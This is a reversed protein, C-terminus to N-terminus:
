HRMPTRSPTIVAQQEDHTRVTQFFDRFQPYFRSEVLLTQLVLDRKLHLSGNKNEAAVHYEAIKFDLDYAPPASDVQTGTPLEITIDDASKSPFNFYLPHIRSAREFTRKEKAGFLGVTLLGRQGAGSVWGPVKLEYEATLEPDSSSWAPTNTLKVDIGSPIDYKIQNELFQKRDTDDENREELRRWLAELGTYTVTVTGELSGGTTLRLNAKRFVRSESASPLPTNIWIGGDKNLRLGRVGTEDWPLLGFPVFPTGPDLYLDKGDLRAIVINSNLQSPNMLAESFFYTDRTSVWVPDAEIGAARALGLFLWTIQIGDGYGRKWVDAVNNANKQDERKVEEESKAREFSTNRLQQTRAYIKRLKVEPSDGPAVIQALAEEMVRRRDVFSEVNKFSQKGFKKWYAAPEKETNDDNTYIFDVRYKLQNEPPMYDETVFAPVDHVELRIKSREKTPRGMGETLNWSYRLSFYPSPNLSFKASKTFLQDSLIWHSDFVYGYQLRHDYRYEIISGVEVDPMTFTKAILKVGRGQIIPKEFVSGDFNIVSGDPRITRAQINRINETSKNYPIEVDAYKRGEETLVKIRVYFSEDSNADDRDVQRYLCIASATPAKPESSMKLEEASVPLWDDAHVTAAFTCFALAGVWRIGLDGRLM